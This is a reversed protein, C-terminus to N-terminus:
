APCPQFCLRGAGTLHVWAPRRMAGFRERGVAKQRRGRSGAAAGPALRFGTGWVRLREDYLGNIGAQIAHPMM